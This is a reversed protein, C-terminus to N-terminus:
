LLYGGPLPAPPSAPSSNNNNNSSVSPIDEEYSATVPAGPKPPAEDKPKERDLIRDLEGKEAMDLFIEANMFDQGKAPDRMGVFKLGLKVNKLVVGDSRLQQLAQKMNDEDPMYHGSFNNIYTINGSSNVSMEGACAVPGGSLFSSHHFRGGAQSAAYFTGDPSMVYMAVGEDQKSWHSQMGETKFEGGRQKLVGGSIQVRMQERGEDKLYKTNFNGKLKGDEDRAPAHRQPGGDPDAIGTENVYASGLGKLNKYKSQQALAAIEEKTYQKGKGGALKKDKLNIGDHMEVKAPANNNDPAENAVVPQQLLAANRAGYAEDLLGSNDSGEGPSLDFDDEEGEGGESDKVDSYGDPLPDSSSANKGPASTNNPVSRFDDFYGPPLGGNGGPAGDKPVQMDYGHVNPTAPTNLYGGPVDVKEETGYGNSAGRVQSPTQSYGGGGEVGTPTKGYGGGINAPTNLYGGPVNM